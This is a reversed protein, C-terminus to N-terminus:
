LFEDFVINKTRRDKPVIEVKVKEHSTARSLAVYLLGTNLCKKPKGRREGLSISSEQKSSQIAIFGSSLLLKSSNKKDQLSINHM